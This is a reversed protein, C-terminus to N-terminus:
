PPGGEVNLRLWAAKLEEVRSEAQARLILDRSFSGYYAAISEQARAPTPNPGLASEEGTRAVFEREFVARYDLLPSSELARGSGEYGFHRGTAARTPEERDGGGEAGEKTDTGNASGDRGAGRSGEAEDADPAEAGEPEGPENALRRLPSRSLAEGGSADRSGYPRSDPGSAEAPREGPSLLSFEPRTDASPEVTEIRDPVNLLDKEPYGLSIGYGARLSLAQALIFLALGLGFVAPWVRSLAPRRPPDLLALRLALLARPELLERSPGQGQCLYSELAAETDIGRVLALISDGQPPYALFVPLAGLATLVLSYYALRPLDGLVAALGLGGWLLAM